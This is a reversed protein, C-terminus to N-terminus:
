CTCWNDADLAITIGDGVLSICCAIGDGRKIQIARLSFLLCFLRALPSSCPRRQWATVWMLSQLPSLVIDRWWRTIHLNSVRKIKHKIHDFHTRSWRWFRNPLDLIKFDRGLRTERERIIGLCGASAATSICDLPMKWGSILNSIMRSWNFESTALRYMISEINNYKIQAGWNRFCDM